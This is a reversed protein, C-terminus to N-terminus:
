FEATFINACTPACRKGVACGIVQLYFKSNFIFNNLTLILASFTIVETSITKDTCKDYSKEVTAIGERNLVSTYISKVDM